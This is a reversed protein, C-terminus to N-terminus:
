YSEVRDIKMQWAAEGPKLKYQFQRCGGTPAANADGPKYVPFRRVFTNEMVEFEDHGMYGALNKKAPKEIIIPTLSKKGNTSYALVEGYSGSGSNTLVLFVEPSNDGDMDALFARVVQSESRVTIPENSKKLGKPEITIANEGPTNLSSIRVSFGDGVLTQDFPKGACPLALAVALLATILATPM